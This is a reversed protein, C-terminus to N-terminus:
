RDRGEHEMIDGTPRRCRVVYHRAARDTNGAPAAGVISARDRLVIEGTPVFQQVRNGLERKRLVINRCRRFNSEPRALWTRVGAETGRQAAAGARASRM